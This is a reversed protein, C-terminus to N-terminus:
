LEIPEYYIDYDNCIDELLNNLSDIFDDFGEEFYTEMDIPSEEGFVLRFSVYVDEYEWETEHVVYAEVKALIENNDTNVLRLNLYSNIEESLQENYSEEDIEENEYNDEIIRVKDVLQKIDIEGRVALNLLKFESNANTLIEEFEVEDWEETYERIVEDYEQTQDNWVYDTYSYTESFHETNDEINEDTFLGGASASLQMIVDNEEQFKYSASVESTNNTMDVEFKFGEINLDAAAAEPVGDDRYSASFIFTVVTESGTKLDAKIGAPLDGTYEEDLPNSITIGEYDYVTFTADNSAAVDSSPFYFIIKDGGPNEDWDNIDPNWTYTGVNEDWFEQISEPDEEVACGKIAEFVDNVQNTREACGYLADLVTFLGTGRFEQVGKTKGSETVEILNGVAEVTNTARLRNLVGILDIGTDEILAKNEEVSSSSFREVNNKDGGCSVMMFIVSTLFFSKVLNKM